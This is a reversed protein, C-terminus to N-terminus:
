IVKLVELDMVEANNSYISRLKFKVDELDSAYFVDNKVVVKEMRSEGYCAPLDKLYRLHYKVFFRKLGKRYKIFDM